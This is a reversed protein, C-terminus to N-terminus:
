HECSGLVDHRAQVTAEARGLVIINKIKSFFMYVYICNINLILFM